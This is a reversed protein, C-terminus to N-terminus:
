GPCALAQRACGELHTQARSVSRACALAVGERAREHPASVGVPYGAGGWVVGRLRHQYSIALLHLIGMRLLALHMCLLGSSRAKAKLRAAEARPRLRPLPHGGPTPVGLIRHMHRGFSVHLRCVDLTCTTMALILSCDCWLRDVQRLYATSNAEAQAQRYWAPSATGAVGRAAAERLWCLASQPHPQWGPRLAGLRPLMRVRRWWRCLGPWEARQAPRSTAGTTAGYGVLQLSFPFGSEPFMDAPM